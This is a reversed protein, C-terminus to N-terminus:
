PKSGTPEATGLNGFPWLGFAKLLRDAKQHVLMKATKEPPWPTALREPRDAIWYATLGVMTADRDLIDQDVHDFTDAPSHHTYEYDPSDQGMNIGPLGQLIFPGTDTDFEAHDDVTVKGFAAVAKTFQKVAPILDKRGGLDLSVVPGQGNDLTLAALTNAVENRHAKAYAFSGLLGQEEGTYLVFRITRRPKYGSQMIARAAELVCVSGFGNDTAGEALDWSDLHAGVVVIQEPHETGRIEGVVNAAEVPGATVHNQVDLHLTVVKGQDLFRDIQEQDERTMSVVPIDYYRAFGLIGTHTMNMGAALQGGQGGIVAAARAAYAAKLFDGFEVFLDMRDEPAKGKAVMVLNKGAWTSANEKMEQDIQYLNVPVADATVGGEPTSGVWGMSDVTLAHHAPSLIEASVTGRTWGRFVSYSEAHVNELGISKMRAIGWRVAKEAAPTATLRPGLYDSLYELDKSAESRMMGQGAIATLGPLTGDTAPGPFVPSNPRAAGFAFAKISLFIALLAISRKM